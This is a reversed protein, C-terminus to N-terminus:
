SGDAAPPVRRHDWLFRALAELLEDEDPIDLLVEARLAEPGAWALRDITVDLVARCLSRRPDPPSGSQLYLAANQFAWSVADQAAPLGARRLDLGEVEWARLRLAAGLELYFCRPLPHAKLYAPTIGLDEFFAIVLEADREALVVVRAILEPPYATPADIQVM